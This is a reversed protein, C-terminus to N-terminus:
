GWARTLWMSLLSGLTGGVIYGSKARWGTAGVVRRLVTWQILLYSAETIAAMPYNLHALARINAVLIFYALAQLAAFSAFDRM